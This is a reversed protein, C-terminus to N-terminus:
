RTTLVCYNPAPISPVFWHRDSYLNEVFILYTAPRAKRIAVTPQLRMVGRM